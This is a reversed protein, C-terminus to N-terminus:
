FQNYPTATSEAPNQINAPVNAFFDFGAMEEVSDITVYQVTPSSVHEVLYAAGKASQPVGPESFSVKMFCQYYHTPKACSMGNKDEVTDYSGIFLPGSVVYLTDSGSTAEGLSRVNSEVTSNWVGQNLGSLQPTMNSFYCTMRVQSETTERYSAALQHGRDYSLGNKDPYSKSLDPQWSYDPNSSTGFVLAPDYTWTEKRDVVKPYADNNMACAVWLACKKDYDQLLTYSRMVRNPRVQDNYFTHTVLKQKSNSTDWRQWKTYYTSNNQTYGVAENGLTHGSVAGVAPVEYCGLYYNSLASPDQAVFSKVTGAREETQDTTANYEVVFAKFYYTTGEILNSLGYSFPSATGGTTVRTATGNSVASSSTGWYFGTASITGTAGSYSGNLTAGTATVSGAAATTVSATAVPTTPGGSTLKYLQIVPTGDDSVSGSAIYCFRNKTTGVTLNYRLYAGGSSIIDVYGNANNGNTNYTISSYYVTNLDNEIYNTNQTNGIYYGSATRISYGGSVAAITFQRAATTETKEIRNNSINVAFGNDRYLTTTLSGNFAKSGAEYVILYEGSWDTLNSTVKEYYQTTQAATTSFSVVEGFRDEDAGTSANFEKVYAKVYYTTGASLGTLDYTFPSSIGDATVRTTPNDTTGWYFGVESITGTADSYSGNLTAGTEGIEAVEGTTVFATATESPTTGGSLKYLSPYWQSDNYCAFRDKQQSNCRITRNSNYVNKIEVYNDDLLTITWEYKEAVFTTSYYLYNSGSLSSSTYGLYYDGFKITYGNTSKDIRINLPNGQELSIINNTVTVNSVSSYNNSGNKGAMAYTTEGETRALVYDGTWDIPESTVLHYGKELRGVSEMKIGLKNHTNGDFALNCSAIERTYTAKSTVLEVTLSTFTVPLIGIWFTLNSGDFSLNEGSVTVSNSPEVADGLTGNKLNLLYSGTLLADDQATLTVSEVKEGPTLGALNKLTIEGHAVLRSWMLPIAETPKSSYTRISSGAMLDAKPDFSTFAPTQATPISVTVVDDATFGNETCADAPYVTYFRYTGSPTATFSTPVTFSATLGGDELPVSAYLKADSYSSANGTAKQWVDNVTFGMRIQDGESWIVQNGSHETRTLLEDSDEPDSTFVFTEGGESLDITADPSVAGPLTPEFEETGQCATLVAAAAFFTLLPLKKM